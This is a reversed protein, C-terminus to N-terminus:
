RRRLAYAGLANHSTTKTVPSIAHWRFVGLDVSRQLGHTRGLQSRRHAGHKLLKILAYLRRDDVRQDRSSGFGRGAPPGRTRRPPDHLLGPRERFGRPVDAMCVRVVDGLM